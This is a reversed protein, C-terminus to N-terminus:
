AASVAASGPALQLRGKNRGGWTDTQSHCNPCLLRLNALRNDNGDGNVHNLELSLPRGRWDSIGCVACSPTLLGAGVLRRRLHARARPGRLLREIPMAQPRSVVAGRRRASNWTERAFGFREQCETISHGEDYYRQIERWDYRRNCRVDLAKGLNRRHYSVTSPSLGLEAAIRRGSLGREVLEAVRQRTDVYRRM